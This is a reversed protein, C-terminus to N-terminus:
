LSKYECAQETAVTKPNTPNDPQISFNFFFFSIQFINGAM